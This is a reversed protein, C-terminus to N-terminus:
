EDEMDRSGIDSDRERGKDFARASLAVCPFSFTLFLRIRRLCSSEPRQRLKRLRPSIFFKARPERACVGVHVREKGRESV